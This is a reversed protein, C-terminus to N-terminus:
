ASKNLMRFANDVLVDSGVRRFMYWGRQGTPRRQAGFLHPILEVTTGIRDAIVFQQFDGYVALMDSATTTVTGDMFSAEHAPKGLLRPPSQSDDLMPTTLGVGGVIGRARNLSILNAIWQANPQFRPGLAEQTAYFDAADLTSGPQAVVSSTGTLATVIGTPQGVGTGVQFAEADRQEAADALMAGIEQTANAMDQLAEISVPIFSHQKHVPVAPSALVPSDDTAEAAEAAWSSVVGASSVGNWVDGTAIVGRGIQRLPNVSGNSTLLVTPDLQFPVLHGGASDLLSMARAESAVRQYARLEQADFERHGNLPDSALKAFARMYAPDSTAVAWRALKSLEEGGEADLAATVKARGHDPVLTAREVATRARGRVEAAVEGRSRGLAELPAEGWPDRRSLPQAGWRDSATTQGQPSGAEMGFEGLDGSRFAAGVRLRTLHRDVLDFEEALGSRRREQAGTLQPYRALTEMDAAIEDMRSVCDDATSPLAGGAIPYIPRGNPLFGLPQRAPRGLPTLPTTM